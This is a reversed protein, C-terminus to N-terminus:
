GGVPTTARRVDARSISTGHATEAHDRVLRVVESEDEASVSLGCRDCTFRRAM